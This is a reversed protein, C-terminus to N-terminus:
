SNVLADVLDDFRGAGSINAQFLGQFQPVNLKRLKEYREHSQKFRSLELHVEELESKQAEIMAIMSEVESISKSVRFVSQMDDVKSQLREVEAKLQSNKDSFHKVRVNMENLQAHREDLQAELAFMREASSSLVLDADRDLEAPIRMTFERDIAEKGNIVAQSLERLRGALVETPVVEGHEYKTSVQREEMLNKTDTTIPVGSLKDIVGNRVDNWRDCAAQRV